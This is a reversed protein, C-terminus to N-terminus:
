RAWYRAEAYEVRERVLERFAENQWYPLYQDKLAFERQSLVFPKSETNSLKGLPNKRLHSMVKSLRFRAPDSARSLEAWDGMRRRHVLYYALFRPAIDEIRWRGVDIGEGSLDLLVHIVAMKFSKNPKLEEEVHQLLRAGPTGVLEREYPTAVDLETRVALWGGLGKIDFAIGSDGGNSKGGEATGSHLFLEPLRVAGIGRSEGPEDADALEELAIRVRELRSSQSNKQLPKIAREWIRRVETDADVFCGAPPTFTGPLPLSSREPVSRHGCLALPAVMSRHYNGVFDLVLVFEKGRSLRLGRGLQQLFVTFSLTPRLMLVHTVSPIDIGENLVDVACIVQLPDDPSELAQLLRSRDQEPTEGVIAEAVIGRARFAEAMWRAHGVNACFALVHREGSTSQYVRLNRVILDARTDESLARELEQEDYGQGTWRIQDYDTPDHIAFYQFPSLWGRDVADLLRVEYAIQRDCLALVDQGDTREPTATLGLLFQPKFHNLVRTYTDAAAHHFEDVVIYDFFSPSLRELSSKQGLTPVMAFVVLRQASPTDATVFSAVLSDLSESGQVVPMPVQDGLVRRYDDRTHELIARRHALFLVRQVGSNVVDFASLITKGIGTAAVVAYRNVGAERLKRMEALARRQAPNPVVQSPEPLGDPGDDRGLDRLDRRLSRGRNWLKRYRTLFAEDPRYSIDRWIHDFLQVAQEYGSESGGLAVNIEFDTVYNWEVNTGFGAATFNASGIALVHPQYDKEVLITKAHFPRAGGSLLAEPQDPQEHYLRLDLPGDWTMFGSLADPNNFFGMVSTLVRVPVGRATLRRLPLILPNTEAPSLFASAIRVASADELHHILHDVLSPKSDTSVLAPTYSMSPSPKVRPGGSHVSEKLEDLLAQLTELGNDFGSGGPSRYLAHLQAIMGAVLDRADSRM